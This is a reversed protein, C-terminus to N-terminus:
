KKQRNKGNNKGYRFSGFLKEASNSFSKIEKYFTKAAFVTLGYFILITVTSFILDFFESSLSFVISIILAGIAVPKWCSSLKKYDLLNLKALAWFIVPFEFVMGTIFILKLCFAIYSSISINVGALGSNLGLLFYMNFPLLIYYAFLIGLSFLIFILLVPLFKTTKFKIKLLHYLIVPSSLYLGVFFAIQLLSTLIEAPALQVFNVVNLLESQLTKIILRSLMLGIISAVFFALSSYIIERRYKGLINHISSIEKGLRSM